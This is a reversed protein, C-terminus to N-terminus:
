PIHGNRIKKELTKKIGETDGVTYTDAKVAKTLMTTNDEGVCWDDEANVCSVCGDTADVCSGTM